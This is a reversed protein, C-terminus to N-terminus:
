LSTIAKFQQVRRRSVKVLTGDTRRNEAPRAMMAQPGNRRSAFTAAKM